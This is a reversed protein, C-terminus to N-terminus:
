SVTLTAKMGAAEHGAIDCLLTYTGAKLTVVGSDADGVSLKEFDPQGEIVLTHAVSGANTYDIEICGAKADYADADFQLKDLAEVSVTSAPTCSGAAPEAEGSDGCASLTTALAAAGAISLLTRRM